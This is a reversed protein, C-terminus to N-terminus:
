PSLIKLPIKLLYELLYLFPNDLIVTYTMSVLNSLPIKALQFIESSTEFIFILTKYLRPARVAYKQKIPSSYMLHTVSALQGPRPSM